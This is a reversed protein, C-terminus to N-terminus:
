PQHINYSTTSDVHTTDDLNFNKWVPKQPNIVHDHLLIVLLIFVIAM